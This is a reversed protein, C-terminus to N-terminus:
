RCPMRGSSGNGAQTTKLFREDTKVCLGDTKICFEDNNVSNMLKLASNM